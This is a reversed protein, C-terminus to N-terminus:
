YSGIGANVEIPEPRGNFGRCLDAFAARAPQRAQRQAIVVLGHTVQKTAPAFLGPQADLHVGDAIDKTAAVAGIVVQRRDQDAAM